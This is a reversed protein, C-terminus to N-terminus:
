EAPKIPIMRLRDSEIVSFHGFWDTRQGIVRSVFEALEDPDPMDIRVLIIGPALQRSRFVREGFGKDFTLLLRGSSCAMQLMGADDIGSAVERVWDVDHGVSRLSVVLARAVNEDALIHM